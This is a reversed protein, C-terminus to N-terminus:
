RTTPGEWVCGCSQCRALTSSAQLPELDSLCSPCRGASVCTRIVGSTRGVFKGRYGARLTRPLTWLSRVSLFGFYIVLMWSAGTGRQARLLQYSAVAILLALGFISLLCARIRAARTDALIRRALDATPGSSSELARHFNALRRLAGRQDKIVPLLDDDSHTPPTRVSVDAQSWRSSCEPCRVLGGEPSLGGLSYWCAPCRGEALMTARRTMQREKLRPQRMQLMVLMLVLVGITVAGVPLGSTRFVIMSALSGLIVLVMVLLARTRTQRFSATQAEHFRKAIEAARADGSLKADVPQVAVPNGADDTLLLAM